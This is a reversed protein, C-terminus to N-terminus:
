VCSLCKEDDGEHHFLRVYIGEKEFASPTNAQIKFLAKM